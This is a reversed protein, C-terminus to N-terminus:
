VTNSILLAWVNYDIAPWRNNEELVPDICLPFGSINWTQIGPVYIIALLTIDYYDRGNLIYYLM